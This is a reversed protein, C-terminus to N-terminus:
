IKRINHNHTNERISDLLKNELVSEKGLTETKVSLFCVCNASLVLQLSTNEKVFVYVVFFHASPTQAARLTDIVSFLSSISSCIFWNKVFSYLIFLDLSNFSLHLPGQSRPQLGSM